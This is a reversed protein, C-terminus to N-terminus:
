DANLVEIEDGLHEYNGALCQFWFPQEKVQLLCMRDEEEHDYYDNLNFGEAKEYFTCDRGDMADYPPILVDLVAAGYKGATFQHINAKQPYLMTVEPASIMTAENEHAHVRVEQRPLKENTHAQRRVTSFLKPFLWRSIGKSKKKIEEATCTTNRIDFSRLELNGYLVRSIVSMGPHNHLPIVADPPFIFIGASYCHTSQKMHLYRIGEEFPKVADHITRVFKSRTYLNM